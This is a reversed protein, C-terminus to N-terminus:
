KLLFRDGVVTKLCDIEFKRLRIKISYYFEYQLIKKIKLYNVTKELFVVMKTFFTM